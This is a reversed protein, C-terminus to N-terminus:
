MLSIKMIMEIKMLGCHSHSNTLLWLAFRLGASWPSAKSPLADEPSAGSGCGTRISAATTSCQRLVPELAHCGLAPDFWVLSLSGSILKVHHGIGSRRMEELGTQRVPSDSVIAAATSRLCRHRSAIAIPRQLCPSCSSPKVPLLNGLRRRLLGSCRHAAEKRASIPFSAETYCWLWSLAQSSIGKAM